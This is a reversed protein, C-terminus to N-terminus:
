LHEARPALPEVIGLIFEPRRANPPALCRQEWWGAQRFGRSNIPLLWVDFGKSHFFIMKGTELRRWRHCPQALDFIGACMPSGAYGCGQAGRKGRIAPSKGLLSCRAMQAVGGLPAVAIM